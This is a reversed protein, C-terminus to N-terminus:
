PVRSNARVEPASPGLLWGSGTVDCALVDWCSEGEDQYIAAVARGKISSGPGSRLSYDSLFLKGNPNKINCQQLGTMDKVACATIANVLARAIVVHQTTTGNTCAAKYERESEPHLHNPACM